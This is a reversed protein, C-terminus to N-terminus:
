LNWGSPLIDKYMFLLDDLLAAPDECNSVLPDLIMAQLAAKKDCTLAASVALSYERGLADCKAAIGEPLRGIKQPHLGFHDVFAPLEVVTGDSVNEIYGRNVVNAMERATEGTMLARVFSMASEGCHLGDLGVSGDRVKALLERSRERGEILMAFDVNKWKYDRRQLVNEKLYFPFFECVHRDGPAPYLGFLEFLAFSIPEKKDFGAARMRQALTPYVDEGDIHLSTIWTLHNVGAANYDVRRMDAGFVEEAIKKITDPTGHCLGFTRISTYKEIALSLAGEPNSYNIAWANPCVREMEKAIEVVVPANRLARIIGGPGITDGVSQLVGHRTCIDVDTRWSDFGGSVFTFFIFDLGPLAERFDTHRTVAFGRGCTKVLAAVAGYATELAAPDTDVLRLEGGSIFDDNKLIDSVRQLTFVASGAGIFAFNLDKKDPM